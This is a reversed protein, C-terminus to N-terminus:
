SVTQQRLKAFRSLAGAIGVTAILDFALREAPTHTTAM